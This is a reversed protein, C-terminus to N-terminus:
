SQTKIFWTHTMKIFVHAWILSSLARYIITKSVLASCQNQINCIYVVASPDLDDRIHEDVKGRPKTLIAHKKLEFSSHIKAITYFSISRTSCKDKLCIIQPKSACSQNIKKHKISYWCYDLWIIATSASSCVRQVLWYKM